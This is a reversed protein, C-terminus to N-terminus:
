RSCHPGAGASSGPSLAGSTRSSAAAAAWEAAASQASMLLVGAIGSLFGPGLEIVGARRGGEGEDILAAMCRLIGGAVLFTSAGFLGDRVAEVMEPSPAGSMPVCRGRPAM